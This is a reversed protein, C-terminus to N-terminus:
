EGSGHRPAMEKKALAERALNGISLIQPDTGERTLAIMGAKIIRAVEVVRMAINEAGKIGWEDKLIPLKDEPDFSGEGYPSSLGMAGYYSGSHHVSIPLMESCFAGMYISLGCTEQGGNRYWSVSIAGAVKNKTMGRRGLFGLCRLRDMIAAMYSSMRGTYVPSAFLIGDAEMVLPFMENLDDKLSCFRDSENHSLCWNCHVCHGIKKKASLFMKTKVNELEDAKKLAKELMVQTNGGEVPSGCIGLLTIEPPM